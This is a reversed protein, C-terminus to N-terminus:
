QNEAQIWVGGETLIPKGDETLIGVIGGGPPDDEDGPTYDGPFDPNGSSHSSFIEGIRLLFGPRRKFPTVAM